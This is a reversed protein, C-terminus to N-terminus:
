DSFNKHNLKALVDKVLSPGSCTEVKPLKSKIEKISRNFESGSFISESSLGLGRNIFTFLALVASYYMSFLRHPMIINSFTLLYYFDKISIMRNRDNGEESLLVHRINKDIMVGFIDRLTGTAPASIPNSTMYESVMSDKIQSWSKVSCKRLIDRETIIGVCDNGDTIVISGIRKKKMLYIACEMSEEINVSIAENLYRDLISVPKKFISNM